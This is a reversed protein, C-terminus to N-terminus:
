KPSITLIQRLEYSSRGVVIRPKGAETLVGSVVGHTVKKGSVLLDVNRGVLANAMNLSVINPSFQKRPLTAGTQTSHHTM